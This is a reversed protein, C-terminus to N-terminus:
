NFLFGVRFNGTFVLPFDGFPGMFGYNVSNEYYDDSSFGYGVGFYFDILFADAYIWQKGMNIVVAGSISSERVAGSYDQYSDFTYFNMIIEPRVYGGKLLHNYRMGPMRFDPTKIFKYGFKFTAGRPNTGSADWGLGIIGLTTELSQGPKLSREYTFQTSGILSSVFSIKLANKKQDLYLAPDFFPDSFTFEDGDKTILKSIKITEMNLIPSDPRQYVRYKVVEIGIEIVDVVIPDTSGKVYIKDQSYSETAVLIFLLSLSLILTKM